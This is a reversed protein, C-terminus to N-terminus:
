NPTPTENQEPTFEVDELSRGKDVYAFSETFDRLEMEFTSNKTTSFKLKSEGTKPDITESTHRGGSLFFHSILSRDEPFPNRLVIFKKGTVPNERIGVIAYSHEPIIGKSPMNKPDAVVPQDHEMANKLESFLHEEEYGYSKRSPLIKNTNMWTVVAQIAEKPCTEPNKQQMKNLHAQFAEITLPHTKLLKEWDKKNPKVWAWWDALLASNDNFVHKVINQMTAPNTMPRLLFILTYVDQGSCGAISKTYLDALTSKSQYPLSLSDTSRGLFTQLAQTTKGSKLTQNYDGSHFATYAKELYRVWTAGSSLVGPSTPLSKDIAIWHPKYSDDFLLVHVEGDKEVMRQRIFNEGGPLALISNIASLLYCDGSQSGQIIQKVELKGPYLPATDAKHTVQKGGFKGTPDKRYKTQAM